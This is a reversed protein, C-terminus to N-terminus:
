LRWQVGAHGRGAFPSSSYLTRQDQAQYHIRTLAYLAELQLCAWVDGSIPIRVGAAVGLAAWLRDHTLARAAGLARARLSGLELTSGLLLEFPRQVVLLSLRPAAVFLEMRPGQVGRQTRPLGWRMGLEVVFAHQRLAIELNLTPAVGPLTGLAAGGGIGLAIFSRQADGSLDAGEEEQSAVSAPASPQPRRPPPPADGVSGHASAALTVQLAVAELFTECNKSHLRQKSQGSPSQLELDLVFGGREATALATVRVARANVPEPSSLLWRQVVQALREVTPCGPPAQWDLEPGAVQALTRAPTCTIAAVLALWM